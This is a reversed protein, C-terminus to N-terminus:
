SVVIQGVMGGHYQCIYYYTGPTVGTTDWTVTGVAAGNGTITGTTVQNSTGTTANTKIYFPHGSASVNFVLIDQANCNITPDLANTHGTTRDNGSFVYHSAGSNGVTFTLTTGVSVSVFGGNEIFSKIAVKMGATVTHQASEDTIFTVNADGKIGGTEYRVHKLDEYGTLHQGTSDWAMQNGAHGQSLAISYASGEASMFTAGGPGSGGNFPVTFDNLGNLQMIYRPRVAPGATSTVDGYPIYSQTYGLNPQNADTLEHDAPRYWTSGRFQETHLQSTAACVYKLASGQYELGLRLAMAAGNSYGVVSIDSTDVNGWQDLWAILEVLADYDPADSETIINWANGYGNPAVLLHNNLDGALSSIMGAGTGGNGHLLIAVPSGQPLPNAPLQIAATYNYNTEQTWTKTAFTYTGNAINQQQYTHTNSAYFKPRPYTQGTTRGGVQPMLYGSTKRLPTAHLVLNPSGRRCSYDSYGGGSLDFDMEGEHSTQQLYFKFDENTFREKGSAVLAAVGAVQPSAMSTGNLRAYYNGSGQNYKTDTSGAANYSSAIYEGPAFVTIQEGYNTFSARRFDDVRSMAGVRIAGQASGPSMGRHYYIDYGLGNFRVRTDYLSNGPEVAQYNENGAAAIIVVGDKIADEADAAVATNNSPIRMQNSRIGFDTLIGSTTWGSPGPNNADYTVGEYVIYSINTPQISTIELIDDINFGYGWSHNTITPNRFGTVPNIPKNNHFARLYDFLLLAPLNQGSPMTGLIQLGYINAERAWGYHQGAATGAVHVGHYEPNSLNDYYTIDGTPEAQNDNDIGNVITNLENFWQYQVFRNLNTSPSHWEECDYSVPDDCIVVDVHKGDNFIEVSDTVTSSGSLGFTTKGRQTQDGACHIHGWQLRDAPFSSENKTFTGDVTYPTNEHYYGCPQPTMGMEEPTLQVDWVRPDDRLSEAQEETMWYHTNRSTPRKLELTYGAADMEAYFAELDDHSYLTVVHIKESM